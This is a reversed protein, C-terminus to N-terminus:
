QESVRSAAVRRPPLALGLRLTRCRRLGFNFCSHQQAVCLWLSSPQNLRSPSCLCRASVSKPNAPTPHPTLALVSTEHTADPLVM